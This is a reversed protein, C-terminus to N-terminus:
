VSVYGLSLPMHRHQCLLRWEVTYEQANGRSWLAFVGDDRCTERHGSLSNKPPSFVVVVVFFFSSFFFVVVIFWFVM